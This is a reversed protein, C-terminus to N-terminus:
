DLALWRTQRYGFGWHVRPNQPFSVGGPPGRGESNKLAARYYM